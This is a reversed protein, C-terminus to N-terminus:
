EKGPTIKTPPIWGLVLYMLETFSFSASCSGQPMRTPQLQGLGPISFAFYHRDEPHVMIAWYGHKLDLKFFMQHSPHGLYDHCGSMLEVFCGPTDEVVNQYNFTLRPEDWESPNDSKNVLQAQANWDSLKGNAQMTREYMGCKLGDNIIRRLWFEKGPPWRRQKPRNFPPTGEKLRVRHVYLDTPPLEDLEVSDLDRYTYLLRKVKNTQEITLKGLKAKTTIFWDDIDQDTKSGDPLQTNKM